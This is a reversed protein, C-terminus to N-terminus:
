LLDSLLIVNFSLDLLGSLLLSSSTAILGRTSTVNAWSPHNFKQVFNLDLEIKEQVM